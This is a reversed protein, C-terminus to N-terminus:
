YYCYLTTDYLLRCPLTTTTLRGDHVQKFSRTHVLMCACCVQHYPHTDGLTIEYTRDECVDYWNPNVWGAFPVGNIGMQASPFLGQGPKATSFGTLDFHFSQALADSRLDRLYHPFPAESTPFHSPADPYVSADDRVDLQMVIDQELREEIGFYADSETRPRATFTAIGASSCRLAVDSRTGQLFVIYPLSLYPTRHFIGDRAILVMECDGGGILSLEMPYTASAFLMRLLVVRGLPLVIHPQYQGNVLVFNRPTQNIRVDPDITQHPFSNSIALWSKIYQSYQSTDARLDMPNMAVVISAHEYLQHLDAPLPLEDAADVLLVGFAGGAIQL